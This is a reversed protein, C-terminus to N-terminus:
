VLVFLDKGCRKAGPEYGFGRDTPFCKGHPLYYHEPMCANHHNLPAPTHSFNGTHGSCLTAVVVDM